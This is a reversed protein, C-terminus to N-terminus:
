QKGELTPWKFLRSLVVPLQPVVMRRWSEGRRRRWSWDSRWGSMSADRKSIWSRWRRSMCNPRSVLCWVREWHHYWRYWRKQLQQLLVWFTQISIPSLFVLNLFLHQNTWLIFSWKLSNWVKMIAMDNSCVDLVNGSSCEVLQSTVSVKSSPDTLTILVKQELNLHIGRLSIWTSELSDSPVGFPSLSEIRPEWAGVIIFSKDM